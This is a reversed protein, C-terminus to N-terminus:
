PFLSRFSTDLERTGRRALQRANRPRGGKSLRRSERILSSRSKSLKSKKRKGNSKRSPDISPAALPNTLFADQLNGEAKLRLPTQEVRARQGLLNRRVTAKGFVESTPFPEGRVLKQLDIDGTFDPAFSQKRRRQRESLGVEFSPDFGNDVSM